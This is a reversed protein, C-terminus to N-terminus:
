LTLTQEVYVCGALRVSIMVYDCKEPMGCVFLHHPHLETPYLMLGDRQQCLNSEGTRCPIKRGSDVKLTSERIDTLVGGHAIVHMLMQACMLSGTIWTLTGHIISISFCGAHVTPQTARSDCSAKGLSLLGFKGYSFDWQSLVSIFLLLLFFLLHFGKDSVKAKHAANDEIGDVHILTKAVGVCPVGLLVGLHCALGFGRPHLQGNGDM